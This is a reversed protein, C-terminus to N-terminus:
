RIGKSGVVRAVDDRVKCVDNKGGSFGDLEAQSGM